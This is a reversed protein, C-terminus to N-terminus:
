NTKRNVCLRKGKKVVCGKKLLSELTKDLDEQSIRTREVYDFWDEVAEATLNKEHIGFGFGIYRLLIMEDSTLEYAGWKM